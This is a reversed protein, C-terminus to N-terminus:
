RMESIVAEGAPMWVLLAGPEIEVAGLKARRTMWIVSLLFIWTLLELALQLTLRPWSVRVFTQQVFVDGYETTANPGQLMQHSM